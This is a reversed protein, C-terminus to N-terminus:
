TKARPDSRHSFAVTIAPASATPNSRGVVAAAPSRVGLLDYRIAVQAGITLSVIYVRMM